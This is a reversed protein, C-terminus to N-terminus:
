ILILIACGLLACRFIFQDSANERRIKGCEDMMSNLNGYDLGCEPCVSQTIGRLEYDCQVCRIDLQDKANTNPM